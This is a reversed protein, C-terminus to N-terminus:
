VKILVLTGYEDCLPVRAAYGYRKEMEDVAQKVGFSHEVANYDHLFIMGGQSMRPWFFFLGDKMPRYLDMDLSVFAFKHNRESGISEPFNGKRFIVNETDGLKKKIREIQNDSSLSESKFTGQDIRCQSTYGKKVDIEIDSELFGEYTDYLYLTRDPFLLHLAKSFNGMYVGAEAVDGQIRSENIQSSALELTRYRVYEGLTEAYSLDMKDRAMVPILKRSQKVKYQNGLFLIKPEPIRWKLLEEHIEDQYQISCVLIYEFSFRNHEEIRVVPINHTFCSSKCLEEANKDFICVVKCYGEETMRDLMSGGVDGFGYLAIRSGIPIMDKPIIFEM